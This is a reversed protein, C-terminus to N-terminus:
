INIMETYQDTIEAVGLDGVYNMMRQMIGEITRRDNGVPAFGLEARQWLDCSGVEAVPIKFQNFAKDKIRRLVMRKEKLSHCEPIFLVIKCIGVIM